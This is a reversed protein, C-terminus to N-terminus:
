PRMMRYIFPQTLITCGIVPNYENHERHGQIMHRFKALSDTGNATGFAKWAMDLSLTTHRVFFAGGAIRHHPYKSKFLFLEGPDMAKFQTKARPRWFNMEEAHNSRLYRFWDTDAIGVYLKM